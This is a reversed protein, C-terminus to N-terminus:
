QNARLPSILLRAAAKSRSGASAVRTNMEAESEPQALAKALARISRSVENDQSIVPEGRDIGASVPYYSNPVKWFVQCSTARAVDEDSFGPIKKHRNLVLGIKAKGGTEDMWAQIRQCSWLTVVDTQAVLMIKHSLDGIIRSLEDMRSSCDVVVYKYHSVLLDFLRALESTTPNLASLQPSGALLDLDRRCVTMFGALLGADMRHLNQLADSLGFVPRVNLHLAAHGLTAFDVLVTAGHEQQLALATNVAITTSGSGGKANMFTLVRARGAGNVTQTRSATFRSLAEQLADPGGTRELYECAGARMAAVIMSPNSMEGVAFIGLDNTSNKLIEIAAIARQPRNPDIDVLVVESRLDQIQRLIPDTAGVPLGGHSFVVRVGPASDGRRQLITLRDRDEALLAIAVGHM